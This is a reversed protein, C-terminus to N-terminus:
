RQWELLSVGQRPLEFSATLIDNEVAVTPPTTTELGARSRM